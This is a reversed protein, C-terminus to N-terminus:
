GSRRFELVTKAALTDLDAPEHRHAELYNDLDSRKLIIKGRGARIYPLGGPQSILRRLSRVSLAGGTYLSAGFLDFYAPDVPRNKM